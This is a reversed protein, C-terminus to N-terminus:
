ALGPFRDREACGASVYSSADLLVALILWFWDWGM